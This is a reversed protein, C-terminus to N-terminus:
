RIYGIPKRNYFLCKKEKKKKVKTGFNNEKLKDM